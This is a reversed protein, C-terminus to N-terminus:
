WLEGRRWEASVPEELDLPPTKPLQLVMLAEDPTLELVRGRRILLPGKWSVWGLRSYFAADFPSLAALDFDQIERELRRLVETAYGRKQFAPATALAEVYATRLEPLSTPQLMRTVWMAHSVLNGKRRGLVHHGPGLRELIPAFDEAYAETCLQRVEDLDADSLAETAVIEIDLPRALPRRRLHDTSSPM